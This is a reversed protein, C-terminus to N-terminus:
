GGYSEFTNILKGKAIVLLAVIFMRRHRWAPHFCLTERSKARRM